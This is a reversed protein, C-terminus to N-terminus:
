TLQMWSKIQNLYSRGTTIKTQMKNNLTIVYRSNFHKQVEIVSNTNIIVGRHVRLFHEPLKQELASIAIELLYNGGKSFITVYNNDSQFYFVDELKVFILKDKKKVTISTMQKEKKEESLEKIVKLIDHNSVNKNFSKLKKVTKELREFEVPKVLYDISNTEFAKLAYHEYATCFVVIPMTDIEQLVDFGNRKPMEIDLFILDPKLRNIKEIAETANQAVDIVHFTEPFELLLNQLGLRAPPEDDIIITKYVTSM